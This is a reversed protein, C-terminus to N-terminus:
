GAQRLIEVSLFHPIFGPCLNITCRAMSPGQMLKELRLERDYCAVNNLIEQCISIDQDTGTNHVKPVLFGFIISTTLEVQLTQDSVLHISCSSSLDPYSRGSFVEASGGQKHKRSNSSTIEKVFDRFQFLTKM